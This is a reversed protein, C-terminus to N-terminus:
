VRVEDCVARTLSLLLHKGRNLPSTGFLPRVKGAPDQVDLRRLITAGDNTSDHEGIDDVLM